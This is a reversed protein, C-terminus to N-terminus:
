LVPFQHPHAFQNPSAPGSRLRGRVRAKASRVPWTPRTQGDQAGLAALGRRRACIVRGADESLVPLLCFQGEPTLAVPPGEGATQRFIRFPGDATTGSCFLLSHDDGDFRPLCNIAGPVGLPTEHGTALDHHIVRSGPPENVVYAITRGSASWVPSHAWRQSSLQRGPATGKLPRLWVALSGEKPTASPDDSGLLTMPSVSPADLHLYLIHEGNPSVVPLQLGLNEVVGVKEPLKFRGFLKSQREMGTTLPDGANGGPPTKCGATLLALCMLFGALRVNM